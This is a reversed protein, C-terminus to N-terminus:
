CPESFACVCLHFFLCFVILKFISFTGGGWSDMFISAPFFSPMKPDLPFGGLFFCVYVCVIPLVLPRRPLPSESLKPPPKTKLVVEDM